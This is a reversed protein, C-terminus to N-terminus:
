SACRRCTAPRPRRRRGHERRGARRHRLRDAGGREDLVRELAAADNFPVVHTLAPSRRASRRPKRPHRADARGLGGQVLLSDVHGHYCGDIKVIGDREPRPARSASRRCRRRPARPSSACRRARRSASARRAARARDRARVARRVVHGEGGARPARAVVRPHAHGVILPGWSGLYDVYESGTPTAHRARRARARPVGAHRRGRRVRAGPQERRGAICGGRRTSAASWRRREVRARGAASAAFLALQAARREDPRAPLLRPARAEDLIASTSGASARSHDFHRLHALEHCLTDM